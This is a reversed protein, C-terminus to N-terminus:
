CSALLWAQRGLLSTSFSADAKGGDFSKEQASLRSGVSFIRANMFTRLGAALWLSVGPLWFELASAHGVRFFRAQVEILLMEARAQPVVGM